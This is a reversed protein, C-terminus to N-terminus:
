SRQYSYKDPLLPQLEPPGSPTLAKHTHHASEQWSVSLKRIFEARAKQKVRWPLAM